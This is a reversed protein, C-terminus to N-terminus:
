KDYRCSMKLFLENIGGWYLWPVTKVFARDKRTEAEWAAWAPGDQGSVRGDRPYGSHRRYSEEFNVDPVQAERWFAGVAEDLTQKPTDPGPLRPKPYSDQPLFLVGPACIEWLRPYNELSVELTGAAINWLNPYYLTQDQPPLPGSRFAVHLSRLLNQGDCYVVYIQWPFALLRNFL